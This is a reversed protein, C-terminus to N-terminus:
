GATDPASVPAAYDCILPAHDSSKAAREDRDVWARTVTHPSLQFDIRMGHDAYFAGGKYDWYTYEAPSVVPLVDTVLQFAQREPETVHTTMATPDFVDSDTPIVNFDGMAVDTSPAAYRAFNYLFQLKYHYHPHDIARGNPIYLSWIRLGDCIASIARGEMTGDYSPQGEFHTQVDELGVRSILAVGNWQNYGVHAMEYGRAKLSETMEVPVEKMKTEQLGLVDLDHRELVGLVRDWRSRASNVNWTGIRM